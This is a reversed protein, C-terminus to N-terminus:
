GQIINELEKVRRTLDQCHRWLVALLQNHDLQLSDEIDCVAQGINDRVNQASFGIKAQKGEKMRYTIPHVKAVLEDCKNDDIKQIEEKFREDSIIFLAGRISVNWKTALSFSGTQAGAFAQQNFAYAYLSTNDPITVNFSGDIYVGGAFFSDNLIKVQGGANQLAANSYFAPPYLNQGQSSIEIFTSNNGNNTIILKGSEGGQRAVRACYDYQAPTGYTHLDLASWRDGSNFRNVEVTDSVIQTTLLRCSNSVTLDTTTLGSPCNLIASSGMYGTEWSNANAGVKCFLKGSTNDMQITSVYGTFLPKSNFQLACSFDEYVLTTPNLVPEPPCIVLTGIIKNSLGNFTSTTKPLYNSIVNTVYTNTSVKQGASYIDGAVYLTNGDVVLNDVTNDPNRCRIVTGLLSTGGDSSYYIRNQNDTTKILQNVPLKSDMKGLLLTNVSATTAYPLLSSTLFTNTVYGGLTTLLSSNTVYNGLQSTVWPRTAVQDTGIFINNLSYVSNDSISFLGVTNSLNNWQYSGGHFVTTGNNSFWFRMRGDASSITTDTPLTKNLKQNLLATMDVTSTYGGFRDRLEQINQDNNTIYDVLDDEVGDVYNHLGSLDVTLGFLAVSHGAVTLDTAAISAGLAVCQGQLAVIAGSNATIATTNAIGTATNIGITVNAAALDTIIGAQVSGLSVVSTTLGSTTALLSTIATSNAVTASINTALSAGMTSVVGSLASLSTTLGAIGTTTVTDLAILNTGLTAILGSHTAITATHAASTLGLLTVTGDLVAVNAAVAATASAATALGATVVGSLASLGTTLGACIGDLVGVQTQLGTLLADHAALRSECASTRAELSPCSITNGSVVISGTGIYNGSIVSGSVTITTSGSYLAKLKADASWGITIQDVSPPQYKATLYGGSDIALTSPDIKLSLANGNVLFLPNSVSLNLSLKNGVFKLTSDIDVSINSTAKNIVIGSGSLAFGLKGSIVQLSTGDIQLSVSSSNASTTLLLPSTYTTKVYLNNSGNVGISVDDKRVSIMRSSNVRAAVDIAGGTTSQYSQFLYAVHVSDENSLSYSLPSNHKYTNCYLNGGVFNFNADSNLGTLSYFPVRNQGRSKISLTSSQLFDDSTKLSILKVSDSYDSPSLDSIFDIGSQIANTIGRYTKLAGLGKMFDDQLTLKSDQLKFDSTDYQLSVTGHTADQLAMALPASYTLTVGTSNQIASKVSLRGDALIQLTNSDYLLSTSAIGNTVTASLPAATSLNNINLLGNSNYLSVSHINPIPRSHTGISANGITVLEGSIFPSILWPNTIEWLGSLFKNPIM